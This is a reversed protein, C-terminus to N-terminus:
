EAGKGRYIKLKTQLAKRDRERKAQKEKEKREQEIFYNRANLGIETFPNQPFSVASVDFVRKISDIVRTHTKQDYHDQAVTFSFSMQTYNGAKIDDLMERAPRTKGLDARVALGHTDAWVQLTGATTRALVGGEHDRLFVIDSLNCNNFAGRSIQEYYQVGDIELMPYKDFTSAYGNIVTSTSQLTGTNRYERKNSIM